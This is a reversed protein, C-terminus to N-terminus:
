VQRLLLRRWTKRTADRQPSTKEKLLSTKRETFHARLRYKYPSEHVNRITECMIDFLWLFRFIYLLDHLQNWLIKYHTEQHPFLIDYKPFLIM